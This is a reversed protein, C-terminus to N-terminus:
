FSDQRYSQELMVSDTVNWCLTLLGLLTANDDFIPTITTNWYSSPYGRDPISLPYRRLSQQRGTAIAREFEAQLRGATDPYHSFLKQGLFDEPRRGFMRAFYPNVIQYVLDPSLYTVGADLEQLLKSLLNREEELDAHNAILQRSLWDM